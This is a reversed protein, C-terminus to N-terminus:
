QNTCEKLKAIETELEKIVIRCTELENYLYDNSHNLHFNETILVDKSQNLLKIIEQLSKINAVLNQNEELLGEYSKM